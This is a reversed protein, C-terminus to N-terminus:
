SLADYYGEARRLALDQLYPNRSVAESYGDLALRASLRAGGCFEEARALTAGSPDFIASRGCFTPVAVPRDSADAAGELNSYIIHVHNELARTPLVNFPTTLQVDGVGLATPVLLLEAGQVALARAPEPFEIDFCILSGCRVRVGSALELDFPALQGPQGREFVGKEWGGWLNSKRYNSVLAGTADFVALSNFLRGSEECRECYGVGVCVHASRAADAIALLGAQPLATDHLAACTADYGHIFMEPFLLLEVGASGAAAVESTVRALNAAVNGALAAGQWAAAHCQRGAGALANSTCIITLLAWM